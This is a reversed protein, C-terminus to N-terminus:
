FLYSSTHHIANTSKEDVVSSEFISKGEPLGFLVVNTARSDDNSPRRTSKLQAQATNNIPLHAAVANAYSTHAQGVEGTTTRTTRGSDLLGKTQGILQILKEEVNTVVASLTHLTQTNLQVQQGVPDLSIYLHYGLYTLLKVFFPRFQIQGIWFTLLKLFTM